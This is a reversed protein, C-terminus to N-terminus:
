EGSKVPIQSERAYYLLSLRAEMRVVASVRGWPRDLFGKTVPLGSGPAQGIVLKRNQPGRVERGLPM